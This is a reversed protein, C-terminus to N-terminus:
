IINNYQFCKKRVVRTDMRKPPPMGSSGSSSSRKQGAAAVGSGVGPGGVVGTAPRLTLGSSSSSSGAKPSGAKASSAANSNQNSNTGRKLLNNASNNATIKGDSIFTKAVSARQIYASVPTTRSNQIVSGQNQNVNGIPRSNTNASTNTNHISNGQTNRTQNQNRTQNAQNQNRTQNDFEAAAEELERLQDAKNLSPEQSEPEQPTSPPNQPSHCGPPHRNRITPPNQSNNPRRQM